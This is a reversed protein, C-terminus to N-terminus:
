GEYINGNSYIM